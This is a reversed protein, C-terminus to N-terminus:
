AVVDATEDIDAVVAHQAENLVKLTWDASMLWNEFLGTKGLEEASVGKMYSLRLGSPDVLLLDTVDADTYNPMLRNPTMKLVSGFDSVFVNVSGIAISASQATGTQTQQIGVRATSTFMYESFKRILGPTSLLMDPNGGSVYAAQAMDRVTAESLARKTGAGPADCVTPTTAAFGGDSGGVGRDTNTTLWSQFSAALGAVADGNDAISAQRNLMIAELDRKLEKTRQSIQYVTEKARGITDSSDARHSVKVQKVSTQSHNGERSGVSTDDNDQATGDVTANATDPAALEDKTWEAYENKHSDKGIMDTFVLPFDTIDSIQEMVDERILGGELAAILAASTLSQAAM